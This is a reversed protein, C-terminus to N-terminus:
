QKLPKIKVNFLEVDTNETFFGIRGSAAPVGTCRSVLAGNTYSSITDGKVVIDLSNWNWMRDVTPVAGPGLDKPVPANPPRKDKAAPKRWEKPYEAAASQWRKSHREFMFGPQCEVVGDRMSASSVTVGTWESRGVNISNCRPEGPQMRVLTQFERPGHEQFRYELHLIFDSYEGDSLWQVRGKAPSRFTGLERNWTWVGAPPTALKAAAPGPPWDYANWGDLKGDSWLDTWGVPDAKYLSPEVESREVAALDWVQIGCSEAPRPAPRVYLAGATILCKGNPTFAAVPLNTNESRYERLLKGSTLDHVRVHNNALAFTSGDPAIAACLAGGVQGLKLLPRGSPLEWVVLGEGGYTVLRSGDATIAMACLTSRAPGPISIVNKGSAGDIVVVGGNHMGCAIHSGDKSTAIFYVCSAMQFQRLLKDEAVSWVRLYMDCSGTLLSKGSASFAVCNVRDSARDFQCILRGTALEWVRATHDESGSAVLKGDPSFAVSTVAGTHGEFCHTQKGAALDWVRVTMDDSGSVVLKGDPSVAMSHM